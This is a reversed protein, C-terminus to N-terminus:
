GIPELDIPLGDRHVQTQMERMEYRRGGSAFLQGLLRTVPVRPIEEFSLM